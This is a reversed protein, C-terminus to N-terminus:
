DTASRARRRARTRAHDQAWSRFERRQREPLNLWTSALGYYRRYRAYIDQGALDAEAASLVATPM